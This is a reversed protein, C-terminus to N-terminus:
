FIFETLACYFRCLLCPLPVFLSQYWIYNIMFPDLHDAFALLSMVLRWGNSNNNHVNMPTATKSWPLMRNQEVAVEYSITTAFGQESTSSPTLIHFSSHIRHGILAAVCVKYLTTAMLLSLHTSILSLQPIITVHNCCFIFCMM